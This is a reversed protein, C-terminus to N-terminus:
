VCDIASDDNAGCTKPRRSTPPGRGLLGSRRLHLTALPENPDGFPTAAASHSAASRQM